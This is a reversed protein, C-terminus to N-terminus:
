KDNGMAISSLANMNNVILVRNHVSLIKRDTFELLVKYMYNKTTGVLCALDNISYNIYMNKDNESQKQSAISILIEACQEKISKRSISTIRQEVFDLKVCLKQMLQVFVMPKNNLLLKLDSAPIFCANVKNMASASFSFTKDNIFSNLGVVDGSRATWLIFERKRNGKKSVKVIGSKICYVGSVQDGTKVLYEGKNYEKEQKNTAIESQSLRSKLGSFNSLWCNACCPSGGKSVIAGKATDM